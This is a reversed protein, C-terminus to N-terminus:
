KGNSATEASTFFAMLEPDNIFDFIDNIINAINKTKKYEEVTVQNLVALIEILSEKHDKILVPLSDKFRKALTMAITDGKKMQEQKFLKETRKDMAIECVPGIIDAIADLGQEANLELLKM